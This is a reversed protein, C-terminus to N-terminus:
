APRRAVTMWFYELPVPFPNRTTHAPGPPIYLVDDPQVSISEEGVIVVGRGRVIVYIEERDAHAHGRTTCQPYVVTHGVCIVGDATQEPMVLLSTDRRVRDDPARLLAALGYPGGETGVDTLHTLHPRANM